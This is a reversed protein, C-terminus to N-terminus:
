RKHLPWNDYPVVFGWVQRGLGEKEPNREVYTVRPWVDEPEYMLVNWPRAAIVPHKAEVQEPFERRLSSRM